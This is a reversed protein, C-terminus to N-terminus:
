SRAIINKSILAAGYTNMNFSDLQKREILTEFMKMAINLYNTARDIQITGITLFM